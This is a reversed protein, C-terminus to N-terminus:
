NRLDTYRQQSQSPSSDLTAWDDKDERDEFGVEVLLLDDEDDSREDEEFKLNGWDDSERPGKGVHM